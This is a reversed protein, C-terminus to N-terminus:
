NTALRVVTVQPRDQRAVSCRSDTQRSEDGPGKGSPGPCGQPHETQGRLEEPYRLSSNLRHLPSYGNPMQPAQEPAARTLSAAYNIATDIHIERVGKVTGEPQQNEERLVLRKSQSPPFSCHGDCSTQVSNVTHLAKGPKLQKGTISQPPM